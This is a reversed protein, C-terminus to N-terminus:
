ALELISKNMKKVIATMSTLAIKIAFENNEDSM